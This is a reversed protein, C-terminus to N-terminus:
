RCGEGLKDNHCSVCNKALFQQLTQASAPPLLVLAGIFFGRALRM